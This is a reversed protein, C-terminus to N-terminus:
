PNTLKIDIVPLLALSFSERLLEWRAGAVSCEAARCLGETRRLCGPARVENLRPPYSAVPEGPGVRGGGLGGGVVKGRDVLLM